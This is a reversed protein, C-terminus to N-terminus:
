SGKPLREASLIDATRMSILLIPAWARTTLAKSSTAQLNNNIKLKLYLRHLQYFFFFFVLSLKQAM